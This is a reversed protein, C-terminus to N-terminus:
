ELTIDLIIKGNADQGKNEISLKYSNSAPTITKMQNDVGNFELNYSESYDRTLTVFNGGSKKETLVDISGDEVVKGPESYVSKSDMEFIIKEHVGDIILNGKKMGIEFIRQNGTAGMTLITSDIQKMMDTSQQLIARDQLEQIKPQAFSLVLGIMVFAILTYIVTEIWVQGFRNKMVKKKM